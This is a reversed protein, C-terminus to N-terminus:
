QSINCPDIPTIEAFRKFDDTNFTLLHTVQHAIMAAVLRTDHAQKGMVQYRAALQEWVPFIEPIDPQLPFFGKIRDVEQFAAAASMELGNVNLPRTAVTWFEIINQPLIWLFKQQQRLTAIANVACPYM